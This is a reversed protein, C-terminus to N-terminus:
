MGPKYDGRASESSSYASHTLNFYYLKDTYYCYLSYKKNSLFNHYIEQWVFIFSACECLSFNNSRLRARRLCSLHAKSLKHIHSYTNACKRISMFSYGYIFHLTM